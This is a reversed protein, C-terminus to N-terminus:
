VSLMAFRWLDRSSTSLRRRKTHTSNANAPCKRSLSLGWISSRISDLESLEIDVELNYKQWAQMRVVRDRGFTIYWGRKEAVGGRRPTSSGFILLKLGLFDSVRYQKQESPIWLYAPGRQLCRWRLSMPTRFTSNSIAAAVWQKVDIHATEANQGKPTINEWPSSLSSERRKKDTRKYSCTRITWTWSVWGLKSNRAIFDIVEQFNLLVDEKGPPKKM